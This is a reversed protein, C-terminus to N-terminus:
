EHHGLEALKQTLRVIEKRQSDMKSQARSWKDDHGHQLQASLYAAKCEAIYADGGRKRLMKEAAHRRRTESALLRELTEVRNLADSLKSM